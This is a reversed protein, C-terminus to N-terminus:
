AYGLTKTFRELSARLEAREMAEQKARLRLLVSWYLDAKAHRELREALDLRDLLRNYMRVLREYLVQNM